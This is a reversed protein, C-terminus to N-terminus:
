ESQGDTEPHYATSTLIRTNAKAFLSKWFESLFKANRDSLIASPFGWEPFVTQWYRSAWDAATYTNKGPVLKVAKTFKDTISM